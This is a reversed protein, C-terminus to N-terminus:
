GHKDVHDLIKEENSLIKPEEAKEEHRKLIYKTWRGFGSQEILDSQVLGRLDQGATIV